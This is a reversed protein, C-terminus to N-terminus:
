STDVPPRNEREAVAPSGGVVDVTLLLLSVGLAVGHRGGGQAYRGDSTGGM